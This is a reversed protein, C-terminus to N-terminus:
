SGCQAFRFDAMASAAAGLMKAKFTAADPAPFLLTRHDDRIGGIFGRAATRVFKRPLKM